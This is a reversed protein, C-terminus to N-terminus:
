GDFAGEGYMNLRFEDEKIQNEISTNLFSNTPPDFALRVKKYIYSRALNVLKPDSSFDSWDDNENKILFGEIPGVGLQHVTTFAANVHQIIEFDFANMNADIGLMSKISLLISDSAMKVELQVCDLLM